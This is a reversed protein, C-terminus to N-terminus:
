GNKDECKCNPLQCGVKKKGGIAVILAAFCVGLMVITILGVMNFYHHPM